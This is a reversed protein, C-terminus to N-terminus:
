LHENFLLILPGIALANCGLVCLEARILYDFFRIEKRGTRRSNNRITRATEHGSKGRDAFCPAATQCFGAGGCPRSFQDAFRLIRRRKSARMAQQTSRTPGLEAGRFIRGDHWYRRPARYFGRGVRGHSGEARAHLSGRAVGIFRYACSRQLWRTRFSESLM